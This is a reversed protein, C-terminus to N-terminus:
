FYSQFISKKNREISQRVTVHDLVNLKIVGLEQGTPQQCGSSLIM